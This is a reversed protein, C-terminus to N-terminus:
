ICHESDLAGQSTSMKWVMTEHEFISLFDNIAIFESLVLSEQLLIIIKIQKIKFGHLPSLLYLRRNIAVAPAVLVSLSKEVMGGPIVM